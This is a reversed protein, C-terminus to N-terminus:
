SDWTQPGLGTYTGLDRASVARRLNDEESGVGIWWGIAVAQTSLPVRLVLSRGARFPHETEMTTGVEVLPHKKTPYTMRHVFLRGVDHVQPVHGHYM